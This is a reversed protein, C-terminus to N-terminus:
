GLVHQVRTLIPKMMWPPLILGARGALGGGAGAIGGEGALGGAAALSSMIRGGAAVVEKLSVAALGWPKTTITHSMTVSAAGAEDSGWAHLRRPELDYRETQGAGPAAAMSRDGAGADVVLENTASTVNVSPTDSDGTAGAFTGVPTGSPVGTYLRVSPVGLFEVAATFRITKALGTAPAVIHYLFSNAATDLAEGIFTATIEDGTGPEFVVSSPKGDVPESDAHGCVLIRDTGDVDITVDISAVEDAEVATVRVFVPAAM